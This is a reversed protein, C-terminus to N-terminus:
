AGSTFGRSYFVSLAWSQNNLGDIQVQRNGKIQRYIIRRNDKTAVRSSFNETSSFVFAPSVAGLSELAPVIEVHVVRAASRLQPQNM